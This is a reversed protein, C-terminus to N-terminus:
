RFVPRSGWEFSRLREPTSGEPNDPDLYVTTVVGRRSTRGSQGNHRRWQHGAWSQDNVLVYYLDDDNACSFAVLSILIALNGALGGSHSTATERRYSNPLLQNIWDAERVYLHEHAGVHDVQSIRNCHHFTLPHWADEPPGNVIDRASADGRATFFLDFRNCYFVTAARYYVPWEAAGSITRKYIAGDAKEPTDYHSANWRYESADYVTGNYWRFVRGPAQAFFGLSVIPPRWRGDVFRTEVSGEHEPNDNTELENVIFLFSTPQTPTPASSSGQAKSGRGGKSSNKGFM